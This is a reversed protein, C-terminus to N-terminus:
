QDQISAIRNRLLSRKQEIDEKSIFQAEQFAECVEQKKNIQKLNLEADSLVYM